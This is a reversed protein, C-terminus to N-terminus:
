RAGLMVIFAFALAVALLLLAGCGMVVAVSVGFLMAAPGRSADNARRMMAMGAISLTFGLAVFTLEVPWGDMVASLNSTACSELAYGSTGLLM